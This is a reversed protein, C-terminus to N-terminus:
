SPPCLHPASLLTPCGDIEAVEPEPEPEPAPPVYLVPSNRKPNNRTTNGNTLHPHTPSWLGNANGYIEVPQSKAACGGIMLVLPITAFLQYKSKNM